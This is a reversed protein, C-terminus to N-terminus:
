SFSRWRISVEGVDVVAGSSPSSSSLDLFIGHSASVAWAPPSDQQQLASLRAPLNSAASVGSGLHKLVTVRGDASSIMGDQLRLPLLGKAALHSLM